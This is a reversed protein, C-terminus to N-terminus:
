SNNTNKNKEIFSEINPSVIDSINEKITQEDWNWWQIKLLKDIQDKSFRYKIIKAPVGGVISYPEVDKTVVSGAAIIAGDGIHSVGPLITVGYGIWVDNGIKLTQNKASHNSISTDNLGYVHWTEDFPFTSINNISHNRLIITLDAAFSCYDGIEIETNYDKDQMQFKGYTHEGVSKLLGSKIYHYCSYRTTEKWLRALTDVIMLNCNINNNDHGDYFVYENNYYNSYDENYIFEYLATNDTNFIKLVNENMDYSFLENDFLSQLKNGDLGKFRQYIGNGDILLYKNTLNM